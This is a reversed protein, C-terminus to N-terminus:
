RSESLNKNTSSSNINLMNPIVTAKYINNYILTAHMRKSEILGRAILQKTLAQKSDNPVGKAVGTYVAQASNLSV